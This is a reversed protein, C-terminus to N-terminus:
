IPETTARLPFGNARAQDHVMEVKTEAVEFPYIGATGRGELHVKTMIRHSEVPSKHFISELIEVVFDMSTYDDNHLVVRNMEPGSTKHAPKELVELDDRRTTDTM